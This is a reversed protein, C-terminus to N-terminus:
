PLRLTRGVKVTPSRLDNMRAIDEWRAANGYYRRAIDRLTEGKKVTHTLATARKLVDRAAAPGSARLARAGRNVQVIQVVGRQLVRHWDKRRIVDDTDESWECAEVWWRLDPQSRADYPVAGNADVILDLPQPTGSVGRGMMAELSAIQAEVSVRRIVGDFVVPIRVTIPERGTPVTRATRKPVAQRDITIGVTNVEAASIDLEVVVPFGSPPDPAFQVYGSPVSQRPRQVGLVPQNIPPRPEFVGTPRPLRTPNIGDWSLTM